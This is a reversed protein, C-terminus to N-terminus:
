KKSFSNLYDKVDKLTLDKNANESITFYTTIKRTNKQKVYKGADTKLRLGTKSFEDFTTIVNDGTKLVALLYEAAPEDVIFRNKAGNEGDGIAGPIYLTGKSKPPTLTLHTKLKTDGDGDFESSEQVDFEAFGITVGEKVSFHSIKTDSRKEQPPTGSEKGQEVIEEMRDMIQKKTNNLDERAEFLRKSQNYLTMYRDEQVTVDDTQPTIPSNAVGISKLFVDLTQKVTEKLNDISLPTNLKKLENINDVVKQLSEEVM